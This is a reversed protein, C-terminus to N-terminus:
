PPGGAAACERESGRAKEVAHGVVPGLLRVIARARPAHAPLNVLLTARRLGAKGRFLLALPSRSSALHMREEIGPLARDLLRATMEPAFDCREHGARGVTLVVDVQDRDCWRRLARVALQEDDGVGRSEIQAGHAWSALVAAAVAGVADGGDDGLGLIRVSLAQTTEM